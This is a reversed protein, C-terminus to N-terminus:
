GYFQLGVLNLNWVTFLKIISLLVNIIHFGSHKSKFVMPVRTPYSHLCTTDLSYVVGGKNEMIPSGFSLTVVQNLTLSDEFM